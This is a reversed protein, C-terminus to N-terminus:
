LTERTGGRLRAGRVACERCLGGLFFLLSAGDFAPMSPLRVLGAVGGGGGGGSKEDVHCPGHTVPLVM